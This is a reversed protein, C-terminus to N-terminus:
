SALRHTTEDDQIIIPVRPPTLTHLNDLVREIVTLDVQPTQRRTNPTTNLLPFTQELEERDRILAKALNRSQLHALVSGIDCSEAINENHSRFIFERSQTESHLPCRETEIFISFYKQDLYWFGAKLYCTCGHRECSFDNADHKENCLLVCSRQKWLNKLCAALSAIRHPFIPETIRRFSITHLDM